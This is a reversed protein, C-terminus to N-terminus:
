PAATASLVRLMQATEAVDHTRVISAGRLVGVATAGLSGFLREEIPAPKDRSGLAAGISSKRSVGLLVPYGLAVLRDCHAILRLNDGVSKGFGFGPDLMIARVGASEAQMAADLLSDAVEQVVDGYRASHPMGGVEGLSHMLALGANREAVLGAIEPSHRLATIDNILHAGAELAQAAVEGQFTDVSILVDPVAESVGHIVPLIRAAEEEPSLVQAGEGYVRGRPRSSAGGIDILRAGEDAMTRAREVAADVDLYLGGDSFSDPTVNLIGMVHVWGPSCDLLHGRLDLVFPDHTM